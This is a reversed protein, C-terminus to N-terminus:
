KQYACDKCVRQSIPNMKGCKPCRWESGVNKSALESLNLKSNSAGEPAHSTSRKMEKEMLSIKEATYETNELIKAIAFLIVAFLATGVLGSLIVTTKLDNLSPIDDFKSGSVFSGIVGLVTVVWAIVRMISSNM